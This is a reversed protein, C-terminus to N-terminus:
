AHTPVYPALDPYHGSVFPFFDAPPNPDGALRYFKNYRHDFLCVYDGAADYFM